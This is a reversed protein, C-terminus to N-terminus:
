VIYQSNNDIKIEVSSLADSVTHFSGFVLLIQKSHCSNYAKFDLYAENFHSFTKINDNKIQFNESQQRLIQKIGTAPMARPTDLDIIRWCNVIEKFASLVKEVEKDKLMGVIVNIKKIQSFHNMMFQEISHRLINAAQENHAVDLIVVPDSLIVQFRGMLNVNLLGNHIDSSSVPLAQKLLELVMLVNSANKLQQDGKLQPMPLQKISTFNQYQVAVSWNWLAGQQYNERKDDTVFWYDKAFQYYELHEEILKKQLSQPMDTDGYVAPKDKRYIGAKELAISNRDNGLWEQHDIDVTTILAVDADVVNVADLRGGLGVELIVVDCPNGSPQEEAFGACFIDIAALTGFEFYSLSTEGRASNIREFAQCILQDSVAQQNIRIRENYHLLHPSTYSGVCYGAQTLIAELMAVTSGKGNTGAISIIKFPFCFQRSESDFFDSLLIQIV